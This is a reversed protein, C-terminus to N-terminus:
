RGLKRHCHHAGVARHRRCRRPRGLSGAPDSAVPAFHRRGHRRARAAPGSRARHRNRPDRRRRPGRRRCRARQAAGQDGHQRRVVVAGRRGHADLRRHLDPDARRGSQGQFHGPGQPRGAPRRPHAFRRRACRRASGPDAKRPPIRRYRHGYRGAGQHLHAQNGAAHCGRERDQTCGRNGDAGASRRAPQRDGHSDAPRHRSVAPDEHGQVGHRRAPHADPVAPHGSDSEPDVLRFREDSRNAPPKPSLACPTVM